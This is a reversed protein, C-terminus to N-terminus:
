QLMASAASSSVWSYDTSLIARGYPPLPHPPHGAPADTNDGIGSLPLYLILKATSCYGVATATPGGGCVMWRISNSRPYKYEIIGGMTVRDM